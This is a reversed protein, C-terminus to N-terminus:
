VSYITPLTLHTYSVAESFRLDNTFQAWLAKITEVQARDQGSFDVDIGPGVLMDQYELIAGRLTPMDMSAERCRRRILKIEGSSLDRLIDESRPNWGRFSGEQKGIGLSRKKKKPIKKKKFPWM